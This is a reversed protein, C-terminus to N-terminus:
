GVPQNLNISRLVMGAFPWILTGSIVPLLFEWGFHAPNHINNIGFALTHSLVLCCFIFLAQQLIPFYRVRKYFKLCIYSVIAFILAQQGLLRGTLVDMLLGVLWSSFIGWKYPLALLWFILVLLVWDPNWFQLAPSLPLVNLGMAVIVSFLYFFLDSSNQDSM